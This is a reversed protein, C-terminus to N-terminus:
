YDNYYVLIGSSPLSTKTCNETITIYQFVSMKNRKSADINIAVIGNTGSQVAVHVAYMNMDTCKHLYIATTCNMAEKNNRQLIYNKSCNLIGVNKLIVRTVNIFAIGLFQRECYINSNNGLIAFDYINQIIFDTKIIHEGPLLLLESNNNGKDYSNHKRTLDIYGQLTYHAIDSHNHNTPQIHYVNKPKAQLLSAM